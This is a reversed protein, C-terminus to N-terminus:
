QWNTLSVLTILWVALRRSVRHGPRDRGDPPHHTRTTGQRIRDPLTRLLPDGPGRPGYREAQWLRAPHGRHQDPPPTRGTPGRGPRGPRDSVPNKPFFGTEGCGSHLLTEKFSAYLGHLPGDGTELTYVENVLDRVTAAHRAMQRALMQSTTITYRHAVTFARSWQQRWADADSEVEGTPWRRAELNLNKICYFHTERTDWSFTRLEPLRGERRRFHAFSISRHEADGQASIFLLDNLRWVPQHPDRHRSAPVLSRLIRRLVVVPLRKSEFQIYFIAWPQTDALPRIQKISEIKVAHKPDIGLEAPDYDFTYDDADEAEIPWDLEDRLYAVLQDFNTLTRLKAVDTTPM